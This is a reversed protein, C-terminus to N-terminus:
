IQTGIESLFFVDSFPVIKDRIESTTQFRSQLMLYCFDFPLWPEILQCFLQESLINLRTILDQWLLNFPLWITSVVTLMPVESRMQVDFHDGRHVRTAQCNYEFIFLLNNSQFYHKKSLESSYPRWFKFLNLYCTNRHFYCQVEGGGM